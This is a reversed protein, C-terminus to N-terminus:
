SIRSKVDQGDGHLDAHPEGGLECLQPAHTQTVAAALGGETGAEAPAM